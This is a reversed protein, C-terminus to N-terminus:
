KKFESLKDLIFSHNSKLNEDYKNEKYNPWNYARAFQEYNQKFPFYHDVPKSMSEVMELYFALFLKSANKPHYSYGNSFNLNDRAKQWIKWDKMLIHYHSFSFAQNDWWERRHLVYKWIEDFDSSSSETYAITLMFELLEEKSICCLLEKIRPGYIKDNKMEEIAQSAYNAFKPISIARFSEERPLPLRLKWEKIDQKSYKAIDAININISKIKDNTTIRNGDVTKIRIYEDEQLHELWKIQSLKEQIKSFNICHHIPTWNVYMMNPYFDDEKVIYYLLYSDKEITIIEGTNLTIENAWEQLNGIKQTLKEKIKIKPFKYEYESKIYPYKKAKFYVTDWINLKPNQEFNKNMVNNYWTRAFFDWIANDASDFRTSIKRPSDWKKVETQYIFREVGDMEKELILEFDDMKQPIKKSQDCSSFCLLLSMAITPVLKKYQSSTKHNNYTLNEASKKMNM